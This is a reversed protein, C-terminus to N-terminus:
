PGFLSGDSPGKEATTTTTTQTTTATYVTMHIKIPAKLPRRQLWHELEVGTVYEWM